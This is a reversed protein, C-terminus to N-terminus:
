RRYGLCIKKQDWFSVLNCALLTFIVLINAIVLVSERYVRVRTVYIPFNHQCKTLLFLEHFFIFIWTWGVDRFRCCSAQAFHFIYKREWYSAKCKKDQQCDYYSLSTLIRVTKQEYQPTTMKRSVVCLM